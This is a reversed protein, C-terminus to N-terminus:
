LPQPHFIRVSHSGERAEMSDANKDTDHDYGLLHLVGHLTLHAVHHHLPKKEEEAERVVTEYAIAIDGLPLVPMAVTNSATLLDSPFSLVNTAAPKGRHIANLHAVDQDNTLLVSVELPLSSTRAAELAARRALSRVLEVLGAHDHWAPENSVVEVLVNPVGGM